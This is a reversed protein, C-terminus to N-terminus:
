HKIIKVLIFDIVTSWIANFQRQFTGKNSREADHGTPQQLLFTVRLVQTQWSLTKKELVSTTYNTRTNGDRITKPPVPSTSFQLLTEELAMAPKLARSVFKAICKGKWVVHRYWDAVCSAPPIKYDNTYQIEVHQPNCPFTLFPCAEKHTQRDM